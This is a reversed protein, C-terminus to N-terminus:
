YKYGLYISVMCASHLGIPRLALGENNIWETYLSQNSSIDFGILSASDVVNSTWDDRDINEFFFEYKEIVDGVKLCDIQLGIFYLSIMLYPLCEDEGVYDRFYYYLNHIASTLKGTICPNDLTMAKKSLLDLVRRSWTYYEENGFDGIFNLLRKKDELIFEVFNTM